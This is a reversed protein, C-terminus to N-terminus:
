NLQPHKDKLYKILAKNMNEVNIFPMKHLEYPLEVTKDRFVSEFQKRKEETSLFNSHCVLREIDLEIPSSFHLEFSAGQPGIEGRKLIREYMELLERLEPFFVCGDTL